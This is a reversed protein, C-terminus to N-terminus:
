WEKSTEGYESLSYDYQDGHIEVARAIFDATNGKKRGRRKTTMSDPPPYESTPTFTSMVRVPTLIPLFGIIDVPLPLPLARRGRDYKVDSSGESPKSESGTHEETNSYENSRLGARLPRLYSKMTWHRTSSLPYNYRARVTAIIQFCLWTGLLVISYSHM